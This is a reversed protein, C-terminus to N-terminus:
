EDPRHVGAPEFCLPGELWLSSHVSHWINRRQIQFICCVPFCVRITEDRTSIRSLVSICLHVPFLTTCACNYFLPFIRHDPRLCSLDTGGDFLVDEHCRDLQQGHRRRRSLLSKNDPRSAHYRLIVDTSSSSSDDSSQADEQKRNHRPADFVIRFLVYSNSPRRRTGCLRWYLYRYHLGM